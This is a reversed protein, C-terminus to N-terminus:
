INGIRIIKFCWGAYLVFFIFFSASGINSVPFLVSVLGEGLTESWNKIEGLTDSAYNRKHPMYVKLDSGSFRESWYKERDCRLYKERERTNRERVSGKSIAEGAGGIWCKCYSLFCSQTEGLVFNSTM